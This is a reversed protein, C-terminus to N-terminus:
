SGRATSEGLQCQAIARLVNVDVNHYPSVTWIHKYGAQRLACATLLIGSFCTIFVRVSPLLLLLSALLDANTWVQVMELRWLLPLPRDGGSAALGQAVAHYVRGDQSLKLTLDTLWRLKGVAVWLEYGVEVEDGLWGDHISGHSTDLHLRTLTGAVAELAPAVRGRAEEVGGWCGLLTVRLKALAPLGGSAMVEWLGVGVAHDPPHGRGSDSIELHTLRAFATGPPFLPEVVMTPLVLVELERRASVGALVEAWQVRLRDVLGGGPGGLGFRFRGGLRFRRLTPSCHRLAQAVHVLGDGLNALHCPMTVELRELRAGSAGLMGPLASLLSWGPACYDTTIHLAKLSPPIFAPWEVPADRGCRKAEFGLELKALVPLWRVLGLAALQPGLEPLCSVQLRLEHVGGLLGGTLLARHSYMRLNAAVGTLPPLAGGRLAAHVFDTVADDSRDTCTRITTIAAGHGGGRLREVPAGSNAASWRGRYLAVARARPFTTLAAQLKKGEVMGLDTFHERVVGRLAKCTCALRAAEKGTLLSLLHDEWV